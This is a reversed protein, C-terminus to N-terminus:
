SVRTIVRHHRKLALEDHIITFIAKITTRSLLPFKLRLHLTCCHQHLNVWQHNPNEGSLQNCQNALPFHMVAPLLTWKSSLEIQDNRSAICTRKSLLDPEPTWLLVNALERICHLLIWRPLFIISGLLIKHPSNWPWNISREGPLREIVHLFPCTTFTSIGWVFLPSEHWGVQYNRQRYLTWWSQFERALWISSAVTLCQYCVKLEITTCAKSSISTLCRKWEHFDGFVIFTTKVRPYNGFLRIWM